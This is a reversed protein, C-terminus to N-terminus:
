DDLHSLVYEIYPSVKEVHMKANVVLCGEGEAGVRLPNLEVERIQPHDEVLRSLRLLADVVSKVDRPPMGGYGQLLRHARLAKLMRNAELETVPHLSFQRDQFLELYAGGVGVSMLPGFDPDTHVGLVLDVGTSLEVSEGDTGEDARDDAAEGAEGHKGDAADGGVRLGYAKLIHMAETLPMLRSAEGEGSKDANDSQQDDAPLSAELVSQIRKKVQTRPLAKFRPPKGRPENRWRAYRTLHALSIVADEPFRFVPIGASELLELAPDSRREGMMCAVLPKVARTKKKLAILVKAVDLAQTVLPPIFMVLVQHVDKDHLLLELCAKYQSFTASALMDVPNSCVANEILCAQLAAQTRRSLTPVALGEAEARDVSLIAPGGANTLIGLNGGRPLPQTSLVKAAQFFQEMSQTHVIGTQQFLGESILSSEGHTGTHTLAARRGGPTKGSKLVVIPKERSVRRAIRSFKRPNGFSELYLMIVNTDANNGWFYLLDNGSVDAKNGVGVFQSIGLHMEEAMKLLAIGLAGSQSSLAVNGAPPFTPSFNAHLRMQPDTNLLGLCNPGVIRMGNGHARKVVSDQLARGAEGTEAFGASIIVATYVKKVACQGVVSLVKKASVAVLALDVVDPVEVMSPYCTLGGVKLRKPNVPYIKGTFDQSLLNQMLAHGITGRRDSAGVVAVSRPRFLHAMSAIRAQKERAFRREQTVPTEEFSFEIHIVGYERQTSVTFGMNMFVGLMEKNEVLVEAELVEIEALRAFPLLEQFLHTGIGLGQYADEVTFAVEAHTPAPLRIFRGVAILKEGGPEAKDEKLAVIAMENEFDLHTFRHVEREGLRPLHGMFRRYVTQKSLRNFLNTLREEDKASIPRLRLSTGDKLIVDKSWEQIKPNTM